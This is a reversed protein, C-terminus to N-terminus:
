YHGLHLSIVLLSGVMNEPSVKKKYFRCGASLSNFTWKGKTICFERYTTSRYANSTPVWHETICFIQEAVLTCFKWTRILIGIWSWNQIAIKQMANHASKFVKKSTVDVFAKGQSSSSLFLICFPNKTLSFLTWLQFTSLLVEKEKACFANLLTTLKIWLSSKFVQFTPVLCSGSFKVLFWVLM